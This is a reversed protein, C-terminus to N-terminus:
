ALRKSQPLPVFQLLFLQTEGTEAGIKRTMRQKFDLWTFCTRMIETMTNLQMKLHMVGAEENLLQHHCYKLKGIDNRPNTTKLYELVGVPLQAYIYENIITGVYQPHGRGPVWDWSHLRYIEKFFEDPFTKVWKRCEPLTYRSVIDLEKAMFSYYGHKRIQPIVEETLWDEFKQAEPKTSRIILSYLGAESVLWLNRKQGSRYIKGILKKTDSLKDLAQRTDAYDLIKCVDDAVWWPNGKEDILVEVNHGHFDFPILNSM